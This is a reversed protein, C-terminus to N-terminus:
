STQHVSDRKRARLSASLSGRRGVAGFGVSGGLASSIDPVPSLITSGKSYVSAPSNGGSFTVVSASPSSAM